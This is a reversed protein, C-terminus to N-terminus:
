MKNVWQDMREIEREKNILANSAHSIASKAKIHVIFYAHNLFLDYSEETSNSEIDANRKQLAGIHKILELLDFNHTMFVPYTGLKSYIPDLYIFTAEQIM